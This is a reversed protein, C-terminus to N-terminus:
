FGKEQIIPQVAKRVFAHECMEKALETACYTCLSIEKHYGRVKYQAWQVCGANCPRRREYPQIEKFMNLVSDGKSYHTVTLGNLANM